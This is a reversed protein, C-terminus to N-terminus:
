KEVVGNLNDLFGMLKMKIFKDKPVYFCLKVKKKGKIIKTFIKINFSINNKSIYKKFRENLNIYYHIMTKEDDQTNSIFIFKNCLVIDSEIENENGWIDIIANKIINNHFENLEAIDIYSTEIKKSTFFKFNTKFDAKSVSTKFIPFKGSNMIKCRTVFSIIYLFPLLCLFIATYVIM